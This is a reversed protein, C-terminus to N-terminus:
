SKKAHIKIVSDVKIDNYLLLVYVKITSLLPRPVGFLLQLVTASINSPKWKGAADLFAIFQTVQCSQYIATSIHFVHEYNVRDVDILEIAEQDKWFLCPEKTDVVIFCYLFIRKILLYVKPSNFTQFIYQYMMNVCNIGKVLFKSGWQTSKWSIDM